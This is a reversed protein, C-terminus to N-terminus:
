KISQNIFKSSFKLGCFITAKLILYSYKKIWVNLLFEM